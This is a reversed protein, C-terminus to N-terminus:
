QHLVVLSIMILIIVMQKMGLNNLVMDKVNKVMVNLILVYVVNLVLHINTNKMEAKM